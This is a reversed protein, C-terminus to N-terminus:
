AGDSSQEPDQSPWPTKHLHSPIWFIKLIKLPCHCKTSIVLSGSKVEHFKGM